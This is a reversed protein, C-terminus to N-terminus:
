VRKVYLYNIMKEVDSLLIARSAKVNLFRREASGKQSSGPKLRLGALGVDRSAQREATYILKCARKV